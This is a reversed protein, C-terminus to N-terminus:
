REIYKWSKGDIIAWIASAAVGYLEGIERNKWQGTKHLFLIHRVKSETLKAQSAKEGRATLGARAAHTNNEHQTVWELNSASNNTKNGDIHNVFNKQKPNECFAMAVLRHVTKTKKRGLCITLYGNGELSSKLIKGKLRVSVGDSRIIVRDLSRVRGLNSVAYGVGNIDLWLEDILRLIAVKKISDKSM